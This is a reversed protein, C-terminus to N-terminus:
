GSTSLPGKTLCILLVEAAEGEGFEYTYASEDAFLIQYNSPETTQRPALPMSGCAYGSHNEGREVSIKHVTNAAKEGSIVTSSINTINSVDM